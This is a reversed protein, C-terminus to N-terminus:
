NTGSFVTQPASTESYFAAFLLCMIVPAKLSVLSNNVDADATNM